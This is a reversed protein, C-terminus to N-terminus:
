NLRAMRYVTLSIHPLVYCSLLAIAFIVARHARYYLHGSIESLRQSYTWGHSRQRFNKVPKQESQAIYIHTCFKFNTAKGTGSIISFVWFNPCDRSVGVSWKRGNKCRTLM